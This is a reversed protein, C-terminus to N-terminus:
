VAQARWRLAPTWGWSCRAAHCNPTWRPAGARTPPPRRMGASAPRCGATAGGVPQGLRRGARAVAAAARLLRARAQPAPTYAEFRYAWGWFLEFRRRDWVVPDFPALLRVRRRHPAPAVGPERRGALGACATSRRRRCARGLLAAARRAAPGRWQPAGLALHSALESLTASPCRRTSPWCWTSWRTTRANPTSTAPPPRACPTSARAARAGRWACCAATTCATSCSRAPTARAASGTAHRATRSSRTSRARTCWAASACSTWCRRRRPGARRRGCEHAATRPHMLQHTGRPLFGYNVFFDEEIALRPYRRELDGARYDRVRHRLTLDQARAPARIPDAQVFGSRTCPRRAHPLTTPTFLLARWPGARLHRRLVPQTPAHGCAAGASPRCLGGRCGAAHQGPPSAALPALPAASTPTRPAASGAAVAPAGAVCAARPMRSRGAKPHQTPRHREAAGVGTVLGQLYAQHQAKVDAPLRGAALRAAHDVAGAACRRPGDGARATAAPAPGAGGRRPRHAARAGRVAAPVIPTRVRRAADCALREPGPRVLQLGARPPPPHPRRLCRFLM